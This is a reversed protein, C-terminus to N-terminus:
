IRAGSRARLGAGGLPRPRCAHYASEVPCTPGAQVIGFIVWTAAAPRAAAPDSDAPVAAGAIRSVCAATVVVVAAALLRGLCTGMPRMSALETFNM